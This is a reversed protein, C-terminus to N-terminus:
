NGDEEVRKGSMIMQAVLAPMDYFNGAKGYAIGNSRWRPRDESQLMALLAANMSQQSFPAPLVVGAAGQEVHFAYGCTATALVPLGAVISELIVMGASEKHSPQLCVDAGQYFRPLDDRGSLIRIREAIGLQAALGDYRGQRDNGLIFLRTRYKITEPLSALARISRDVGKVPHGTGVQLLIFEDNGIGFERRFDRRIQVSNEPAMRDRAIGPPLDVMRPLSQPYCALYEQKQMQSLMLLDTDSGPGFVAKEFALYQRSRPTWRYLLNRERTAKWAFCTDAAFYYDLHPLRNFGIVADYDHQALHRELFTLFHKRASISNSSANLDQILLMGEPLDGECNMCIVEVKAGKEHLSEGIRRCDRQLGGHTFWDFLVLAVKM